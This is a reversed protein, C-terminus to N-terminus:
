LYLASSGTEPKTWSFLDLGTSRKWAPLPLKFDIQRKIPVWHLSYLTSMNYAHYNLAILVARAGLTRCSPIVFISGSLWATNYCSWELCLWCLHSCIVRDYFPFFKHLCVRLNKVQREPELHFGELGMAPIYVGQWHRILSSQAALSFEPSRHQPGHGCREGYQDDTVAPPALRLNIQISAPM